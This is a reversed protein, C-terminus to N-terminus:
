AEEFLDTQIEEEPKSVNRVCRVLSVSGFIFLLLDFGYGYASFLIFGAVSYLFSIVLLYVHPVRVNGEEDRFYMAVPFDVLILIFVLWQLLYLEFSYKKVWNPPVIVKRQLLRHLVTSLKVGTLTSFMSSVMYLYILIVFANIIISIKKQQELKKLLEDQM